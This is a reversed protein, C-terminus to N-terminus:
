WPLTRGEYNCFIGSQAPELSALVRRLGAVSEEVSLPAHEGGMATRVWGPSLAAFIAGPYDHRAAAVAMNLAAKSVRYLWTASSEADAISALLSSIFGFRGGAAAVRPAVLPIMRMAGLVNAHMVADFDAQTPIQTADGRAIVGAVQLALDIPAPDLARSFAQVSAEDTVDLPLATAGLARLADLDAARRATAIVASGAQRYQRVFEFGIGRSAGIVLVRAPTKQGSRTTDIVM